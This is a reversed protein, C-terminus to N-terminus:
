LVEMVLQNDIIIKCPKKFVGSKVGSVLMMKVEVPCRYSGYVLRFHGAHM